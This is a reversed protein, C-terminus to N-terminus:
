INIGGQSNTPTNLNQNRNIKLKNQSGSKKSGTGEKKSRYDTELNNKNNLQVDRSGQSQTSVQGTPAQTNSPRSTLGENSRAQEGARMVEYLPGSMGSDGLEDTVPTDGPTTKASAFPLTRNGTPTCM